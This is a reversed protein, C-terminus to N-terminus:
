RRKSRCPSGDTSAAAATRPRSCSAHRRAGRLSRRLLARRGQARRLLADDRTRRAALAEALTVFPALGVGGAVMWAEAPPDVPEFPRGLPGLCRCGRARRSAAVAADDRRRRAQQFDFRGVAPRGADRLIEFISFPRRLLPTSDLGRSTKIMVFQGPRARAAIEPRPSRSCTTTRRCVSPERDGSRTSPRVPMHRLICKAEHAEQPHEGVRQEGARQTRCVERDEHQLQIRLHREDRARHPAPVRREAHEVAHVERQEEVDRHQQALEDADVDERGAPDAHPQQRPQRGHGRRDRRRQHPEVEVAKGVSKSSAAARRKANPAAAVVADATTSSPM